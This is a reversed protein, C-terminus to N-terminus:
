RCSTDGDQVFTDSFAVGDGQTQVDHFSTHAGICTNGHQVYTGDGSCTHAHVNVCTDGNGSEGTGGSPGGDEDRDFGL